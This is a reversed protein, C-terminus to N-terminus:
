VHAVTRDELRWIQRLVRDVADFDRNQRHCELEAQLQSLSPLSASDQCSGANSPPHTACTTAAAPACPAPQLTQLVKIRRNSGPGRRWGLYKLNLSM